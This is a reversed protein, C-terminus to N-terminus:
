RAPSPDPHDQADGDWEVGAVGPTANFGRSPVIDHRRLMRYLTVRSVGLERATLAINERTEALTKLL